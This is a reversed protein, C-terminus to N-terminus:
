TELRVSLCRCKTFTLTPLNICVRRIELVPIAFSALGILFYFFFPVFFFRMCRVIRTTNRNVFLLGHLAVLSIDDCPSVKSYRKTKGTEREVSHHWSPCFPDLCNHKKYFWFYWIIIYRYTIQISPMQVFYKLFIPLIHLKLSAFVPDKISTSCSSGAVKRLSWHQPDPDTPDM